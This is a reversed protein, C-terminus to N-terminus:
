SDERRKIKYKMDSTIIHPEVIDMLKNVSKQRVYINYGTGDTIKRLTAEIGFESLKKILLLNEKKSFSQTAFRVMVTKNNTIDFSSSGDDMFWHALALHDIEKIWKSSVLKKGNKFCLDYIKQLEQKNSYSYRYYIDGACFSSPGQRYKGVNAGLMKATHKIYKLQKPGHAVYFEFQKYGNRVRCHLGADGLLSGLMMQKQEYTLKPYKRNREAM